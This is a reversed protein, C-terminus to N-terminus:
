GQREKLVKLFFAVEQAWTAEEFISGHTGGPVTVFRKPEAAAEFLKRGLAFPVVPDADGHIVLLPAHVKAIADLADFRDLLLLGVPLWGYHYRAVDVMTTYPAELALAAVPRSAALQVAVGTGLSEGVLMLSDPRVGKAMLWDYAANADVSLGHESPHGTSGGYGRWSLYLVGFGAKRYYQFRLPREAISGANGHLFLVTPRGPPAPAYWAVLTEGDPTRIATVEAGTIGLTVPDVQKVDPHYLLQRQNFFMFAAILAYVGLGVLLAVMAGRIM